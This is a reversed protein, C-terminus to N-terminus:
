LYQNDALKFFAELTNPVKYLLKISQSIHTEHINFEFVIGNKVIEGGKKDNNWLVPLDKISDLFANKHDANIQDAKALENYIELYYEFWSIIKKLNLVGINQPEKINKEIEKRTYYTVNKFKLIDDCSITFKKKHESYRVWFNLGKYTAGIYTYEICNLPANDSYALFVQSPYFKNFEENIKILQTLDRNQFENLITTDIQAINLHKM